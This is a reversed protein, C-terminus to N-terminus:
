PLGLTVLPLVFWESVLLVEDQVSSNVRGLGLQPLTEWSPSGGLM